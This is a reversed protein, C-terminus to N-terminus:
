NAAMEVQRLESGSVFYISFSDSKTNYIVSLPKDTPLPEAVLIQGDLDFAYSRGQDNQTVILLDKGASIRYFQITIEGENLYSKAFLELGDKDFFTLQEPDKSSILFQNQSFDEVLEYTTQLSSKYLQERKTVNGELNLSVIEGSETVITLESARLDNGVALHYNKTLTTNLDVPFGTIFNGRRNFAMIEGRKTLMLLVDRKGIREHRLPTLVESNISKTDWGELPKANKDTLLVNGEADVFALRYNKSGDYDILTFKDVKELAQIQTPFGPLLSGSNDIIYLSKEALIAVQLNGNKYYDLPFVSTSVKNVLPLSWITNYNEDLLYGNLLSDQVFFRLQGAETRFVHPKSIITAPFKTTGILATERTGVTPPESQSLIINTFFRDDVNSFQIAVNDLSKLFSANAKLYPQWNSNVNRVLKQWFDPTNVYISFNSAENTKALFQNKELSKSWVNENSVAAIIEKLLYLESAFVMNNGIFAFYSSNFGLAQSGVLAAPFEPAPFLKIEYNQYIESYLTDSQTSSFRTALEDFYATASPPDAVELVLAKKTESIGEFHLLGIEDDVYSFVDDVDFDGMELLNKRANQAQKDTAALYIRLRERWAAADQFSYHFVYSCPLPITSTMDFSGPIIDLHPSLISPVSDDPIVFGNFAVSNDSVQLDLYAARGIQLQLNSTYLQIIDVFEKLNIYVDGQDQTLKTIPLTEPFMEQWSLVDSQEFTRIADEVLFASFSGVFFNKHFIFAFKKQGDSIESITYGRYQRTEKRFTSKEFFSQITQLQQFAGISSIELVYLFDFDHRSVDHVSILLDNGVFMQEFQGNTLQQLQDFNGELKEFGGLQKLTQWLTSSKLELLSTNASTSEYVIAASEPIFGWASLNKDNSLKKYAFFGAGALLLISLTWLFIRLGYFKQRDASHM